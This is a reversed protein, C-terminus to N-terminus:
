KLGLEVKVLSLIDDLDNKAFIINGYSSDLVYDYKYKNAVKDIADQMKKKIPALLDERKKSLDAEAEKKFNELRTQRNQIDAAWDARIAPTATTDNQYNYILVQIEQSQDNYHKSYTKNLELILSDAKKKEPLLDWLEMSNINAIKSRQAILGLPLFFLFIIAINKM